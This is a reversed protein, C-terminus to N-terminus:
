KMMIPTQRASNMAAHATQPPIAGAMAGRGDMPAGRKDERRTM